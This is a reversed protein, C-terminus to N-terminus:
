IVKDEILFWFIYHALLIRWHGEEDSVSLDTSHSDENVM